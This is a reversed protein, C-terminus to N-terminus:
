LISMAFGVNNLFLFFVNSLYNNEDNIMSCDQFLIKIHWKKSNHLCRKTICGNCFGCNHLLVLCCPLSSLTHISLQILIGNTRLNQVSPYFTTELLILPITQSYSGGVSISVRVISYWCVSFMSVSTLSSSLIRACLHVCCWGPHGEPADGEWLIM